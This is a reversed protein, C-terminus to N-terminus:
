VELNNYKENSLISICVFLYFYCSCFTLVIMFFCDVLYQYYTNIFFIVVLYKLMYFIFFLISGMSVLMLYTKFNKFIMLMNMYVSRTVSVKKDILILSIPLFFILTISLITFYYSSITKITEPEVKWEYIVQSESISLLVAHILFFFGIGIFFSFVPIFSDTYQFNENESYDDAEIVEKCKSITYINLFTFIVLIAFIPAIYFLVKSIVPIYPNASAYQLLISVAYLPIIIAYSTIFIKKIRKNTENNKEDNEVQSTYSKKLKILIFISIIIALSSISNKAFFPYPTAVTYFSNQLSPLVANNLLMLFDSFNDSIDELMRLLYKFGFTMNQSKNTFLVIYSEIYSFIILIVPIFIISKAKSIVSLTKKNYEKLQKKM